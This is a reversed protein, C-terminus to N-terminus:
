NCSHLSSDALAIVRCTESDIGRIHEHHILRIDDSTISKVLMDSLLWGERGAVTTLAHQVSQRVDADLFIPLLNWIQWIFLAGPIVLALLFIATQHRLLIKM